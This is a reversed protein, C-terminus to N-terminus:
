EQEMPAAEELKEQIEKWQHRVATLSLRLEKPDLHLAKISAQDPDELDPQWEDQIKVAAWDALHVLHPLIFEKGPLSGKHHASLVLTMEEGLNWADGAARGLDQHDFGFVKEERSPSGLHGNLTGHTVLEHREPAGALLLLRGMDHLLGAMRARDLMEQNTVGARRFIERAALGSLVSHAWLDQYVKQAKPSFSGQKQLKSFVRLVGEISTFGVRMLALLLTEASEGGYAASASLRLVKMAVAPDLSIWEELDKAGSDPNHIVENALLLVLHHAPLASAARVWSALRSKTKPTEKPTAM